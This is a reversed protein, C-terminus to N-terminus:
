LQDARIKESDGSNLVSFNLATESFILESDGSNLEVRFCLTKLALKSQILESILM